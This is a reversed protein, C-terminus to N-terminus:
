QKMKAGTTATQDETSSIAPAGTSSTVPSRTTTTATLIIMIVVIVIIVMSKFQKQTENYFRSLQVRFPFKVFRLVIGANKARTM